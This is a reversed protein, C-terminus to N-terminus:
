IRAYRGGKKNKPKLEDMFGPIKMLEPYASLLWSVSQKNSKQNNIESGLGAVNAFLGRAANNRAALNQDNMQDVAYRSQNNEGQRQALRQEYQTQAQKNMQDYQNVIQAENMTKNSYAQQLNSIRNADGVSNGIGSKIANFSYQSRNLAQAPDYQQQNIPATNLYLNQKDPRKAITAAQAAFGLGQLITGANKSLWNGRLSPIIPDNIIPSGNANIGAGRTGLQLTPDNTLQTNDTPLTTPPLDNLYKGPDGTVGGGVQFIDQVRPINKGYGFNAASATAMVDSVNPIGSSGYNPKFSSYGTSPIYGKTVDDYLYGQTAAYQRGLDGTFAQNTNKGYINDAKLGAAKQFDLIDFGQWPAQYGTQYLPGGPGYSPKMYGGKAMGKVHTNLNSLGRTIDNVMALQSRMKENMKLTNQAEKDYEKKSAAKDSMALKMDDKAFSNGTLPNKLIDSFVYKGQPTNSITEGDDVYAQPLEVGDIKSSNNGIVEQTHPGTQNLYGGLAQGKKYYKGTKETSVKGSKMLTNYEEDSILVLKGDKKIYKGPEKYNNQVKSTDPFSISLKSYLQSAIDQKVPPKVPSKIDSISPKNNQIPKKINKNSLPVHKRGELKDREKKEQETLLHYPKIKMPDYRFIDVNDGHMSDAKNENAYTTNYQPKIRRDYLQMPSRTDIIFDDKERQKFTNADINKRYYNPNLPAMVRKGSLGSYLTDEGRDFSEKFNKYSNDLSHFVDMGFTDHQSKRTYGKNNYYDDVFIANNYLNLSDQTTPRNPDLQKKKKPPDGPGLQGGMAFGYPNTNQQIPPGVYPQNKNQNAQSIMGGAIGALPSAIAGVGPILGLLPSVTSLFGGLDCKQKKKM